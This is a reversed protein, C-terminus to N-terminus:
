MNIYKGIRLRYTYINWTDEKADKIHMVCMKNKGGMMTCIKTM